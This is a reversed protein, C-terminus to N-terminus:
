LGARTGAGRPVVLDGEDGAETAAVFLTGRGGRGRGNEGAVGGAVGLVVGCTM